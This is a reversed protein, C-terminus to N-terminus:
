TTEIAPTVVSVQSSSVNVKICPHRFDNQEDTNFETTSCTGYHLYGAIHGSLM